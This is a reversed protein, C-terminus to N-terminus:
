LATNSKPKVRRQRAPNQLGLRHHYQALYFRIRGAIAGPYNGVRTQLDTIM